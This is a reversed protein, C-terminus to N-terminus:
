RGGRQHSHYCFITFRLHELVWQQQLQECGNEAQVLDEMFIGFTSEAMMGESQSISEEDEHASYAGRHASGPVKRQPKCNTIVGLEHTM